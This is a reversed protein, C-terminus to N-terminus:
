AKMGLEQNLFELYGATERQGKYEKITGDPMQLIFTPYGQVPLTKLREDSGDADVMDVKVKKSGITVEGSSMFETFGPKAKKCHGCWEAFFMTFTPVSPPSPNQFSETGGQIKKRGVVILGIIALLAVLAIGLLILKVNMLIIRITSLIFLKYVKSIKWIYISIGSSINTGVPIKM